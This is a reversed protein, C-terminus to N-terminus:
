ASYTGQDRRGPEGSPETTGIIRGSLMPSSSPIFPVRVVFFGLATGEAKETKAEAL